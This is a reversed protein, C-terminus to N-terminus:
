LCLSPAKCAFYFTFRLLPCFELIVHSFHAFFLTSTYVFIAYEYINTSTMQRRSHSAPPRLWTLRKFSSNDDKATVLSSFRVRIVTFTFSHVFLPPPFAAFFCYIVFVAHFLLSVPCLKLFAYISFPM